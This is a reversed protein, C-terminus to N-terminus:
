ITLERPDFKVNIASGQAPVYDGQFFISNSSENYYWGENPVEAGNVFVKITEPIPKKDGLPFQSSLEVISKSILDLENAFNGCINGKIGGTADAMQGVRVGIKQAGNNIADLCEQTNVSITNVTYRRAAATSGTLGDLFQVYSDIPVLPRDYREYMPTGANSFDDEDTLIIVALFSGPRVFGANLPSELATQMSQLSREDGRGNTGQMANTMFVDLLNPTQPTLIFHGSHVGPAGDRFKAIQGQSLDEYYSPRPTLNYYNTFIPLALYAQSTTVAMQFDLGKALFKNIFSPFNQTLNQQSSLMSGSNDIVWLVDIKANQTATNQRFTQGDQLLSYSTGGKSCATLMFSVLILSFKTAKMPGGIEVM